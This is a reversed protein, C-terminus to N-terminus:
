IPARVRWSTWTGASSQMGYRKGGVSANSLRGTPGAAETQMSCYVVQEHRRKAVRHWRWLWALLALMVVLLSAVWAVAM